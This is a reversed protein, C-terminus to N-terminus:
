KNEVVKEKVIVLTERKPSYLKNYIDVDDQTVPRFGSYKAPYGSVKVSVLKGDVRRYEFQPELLIDADEKKLADAVATKEMEVQSFFSNPNNAEGTVKTESVKLESTITTALSSYSLDGSKATRTIMTTSSCSAAIMVIAAIFIVKKM